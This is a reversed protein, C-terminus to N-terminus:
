NNAQTIFTEISTYLRVFEDYRALHFSKTQKRHFRFDSYVVFICTIVIHCNLFLVYMVILTVIVMVVVVIIVLLVM